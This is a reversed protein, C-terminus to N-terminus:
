AFVDKAMLLRGIATHTLQEVQLGLHKEREVLLGLEHLHVKLLNEWVVDAHQLGLFHHVRLEETEHANVQVAEVLVVVAQDEVLAESQVLDQMIEVASGVDFSKPFFNCLAVLLLALEFILLSSEAHPAIEFFSFLQGLRDNVRDM